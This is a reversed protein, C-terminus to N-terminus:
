LNGSNFRQFEENKIGAFYIYNIHLQRVRYKKLSIGGAGSAEERAKTL